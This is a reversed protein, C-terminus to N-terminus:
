SRADGPRSSLPSSSSRSRTRGRCRGHRRTTPRSPTSPEAQRAWHWWRHPLGGGREARPSTVMAAINPRGLCPRGPRGLCRPRLISDQHTIARSASPSRDAKVGTKRRSHAAVKRIHMLMSFFSASALSAAYCLMSFIRALADDYSAVRGAMGQASAIAAHSHRVIRCALRSQPGHTPWSTSWGGCAGCSRVLLWSREVPRMM